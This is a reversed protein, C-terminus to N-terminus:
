RELVKVLIYIAGQMVAYFYSVQPRTLIIKLYLFWLVRGYNYPQVTLGNGIFTLDSVRETKEVQRLISKVLPTDRILTEADFIADNARVISM